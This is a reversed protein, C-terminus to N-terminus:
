VVALQAGAPKPATMHSVWMWAQFLCIVVTAYRTYENIKKRGAEGEKQLKELPPYVSALLQFIISASIYPMIGLGFITSQSFSGGSFVSIYSLIQGLAGQQMSTKLMEEQNIMPLPVHFGIRYVCLFLLTIGIKQALEPIKFITILKNM